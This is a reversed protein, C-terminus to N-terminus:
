PSPSASSTGRIAITEAIASCLLLPAIVAFYATARTGLAAWYPQTGAQVAHGMGIGMAISFWFCPLEVALVAIGCIESLRPPPRWQKGTPRTREELRGERAMSLIVGINLGTWIGFVKPLLPHFGSAMYVFMAITNFLFIVAAMRPIGPSQGILWVILRFAQAAPWALARLRYRVIPFSVFIGVAFLLAAHLALRLHTRFVFDLM